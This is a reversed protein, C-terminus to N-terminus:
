IWIINIIKQDSCKQTSTILFLEILYVDIRTLLYKYQSDSFLIRFKVNYVLKSDEKGCEEQERSEFKLFLIIVM